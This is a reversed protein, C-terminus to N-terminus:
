ARRFHMQPMFCSQGNACVPQGEAMAVRARLALRLVQAASINESAALKHLEDYESRTLMLNFQKVKKARDKMAIVKGYSHNIFLRADCNRGIWLKGVVLNYGLM